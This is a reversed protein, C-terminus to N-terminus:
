DTRSGRSSRWLFLLGLAVAMAFWQFAYATHKEPRTTVLPWDALLAGPSDAELRVIYPYPAQPLVSGLEAVPAAQILRPWRDDSAIAGLTYAEGPPVYIYGTLRGAGVIPPVDPLQQRSPDAALWGRNVLVLQGSGLRLPTIVEVGYRGQRIRNDLLFVRERMPQGALTVPRYALDDSPPGLTDLPVPSKQRQAQWQATIERKEEARGLQWFGLGVFLPVFILVFLTIRWEFHWRPRTEQSATNSM